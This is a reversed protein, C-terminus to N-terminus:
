TTLKPTQRPRLGRLILHANNSFDIGGMVKVDYHGRHRRLDGAERNNVWDNIRACILSFMLAGRWQGKHPSIVPVPSNGACLALLASFTEIKHRWWAMRHQPERGHKGADVHRHRWTLQHSHHARHAHALAGEDLGHQSLHMFQFSLNSNPHARYLRSENYHSGCYCSVTYLVLVTSHVRYSVKTSSSIFVVLYCPSPPIAIYLHWRAPGTLGIIFILRDWPWRIKIILIM